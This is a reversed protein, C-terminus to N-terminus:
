ATGCWRPWCRPPPSRPAGPTAAPSRCWRARRAGEGPAPGPRRGDDPRRLLDRPGDVLLADPAVVLQALARRGALALAATMGWRDCEEPAAHGVAWDTCWAAVDDFVAERRAEALQKSDRLWAPLSGAASGRAVVAVGVSVPGAWAGRGVEDVGGVWRHGSGWLRAEDDLTPRRGSRGRTPPGATLVMPATASGPFSCIPLTNGM